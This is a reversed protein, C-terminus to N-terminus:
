FIMYSRIQVNIWKKSLEGIYVDSDKMLDILKDSLIMSEKDKAEFYKNHALSLGTLIVSVEVDDLKLIKVGM